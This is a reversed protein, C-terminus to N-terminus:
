LWARIAIAARRRDTADTLLTDADVELLAAVQRLTQQLKAAVWDHDDKMSDDNM